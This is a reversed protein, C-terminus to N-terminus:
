KSPQITEDWEHDLGTRIDDMRRSLTAVTQRLWAMVEAQRDASLADATRSLLAKKHDDVAEKFEQLLETVADCHEEVSNVPDPRSAM